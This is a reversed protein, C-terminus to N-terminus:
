TPIFSVNTQIHMCTHIYLHIHEQMYTHIYAYIHVYIAYICAYVRRNIYTYTCMYMSKCLCINDAHIPMFVCILSM